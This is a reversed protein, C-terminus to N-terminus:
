SALDLWTKVGCAMVEAVTSAFVLQRKLNFSMSFAVAVVLIVGGGRLLGSVAEHRSKADRSAIFCYLSNLYEKRQPNIRRTYM